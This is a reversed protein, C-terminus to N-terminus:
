RHLPCRRRNGADCSGFCLTTASRSGIRKALVAAPRGGLAIALCFVIEDLRRTRRAMPPAIGDFREAFIRRPCSAFGWRFRRVQAVLRACRGGIPLDNLKREYRSHVTASPSGCVSCLGSASLARVVIVVTEGDEVADDICFGAPIVRSLDFPSM